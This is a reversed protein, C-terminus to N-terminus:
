AIYKGAFVYDGSGRGSIFFFLYKKSLRGINFYCSHWKNDRPLYAHVCTCKEGIIHVGDYVSRAVV